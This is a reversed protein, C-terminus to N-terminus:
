SPTAGQFNTVYSFSAKALVDSAGNALFPMNFDGMCGLVESGKLSADYDEGYRSLQITMPPYSAIINDLVILADTDVPLTPYYSERRIRFRIPGYYNLKSRVRFYHKTGGDTVDLLLSEVNETTSEITNNNISLVTMPLTRWALKDYDTGVTSFSLGQARASDTVDTAIELTISSETRALHSNVVDFYITGIGDTLCPSYVTPNAANRMIVCANIENTYYRVTGVRFIDPVSKQAYRASWPLYNRGSLGEAVYGARCNVLHWLPTGDAAHLVHNTGHLLYRTTIATNDNSPEHVWYTVGITSNTDYYGQNKIQGTLVSRSDNNMLLVRDNGINSYAGEVRACSLLAIALLLLASPVSRRSLSFLRGFLPRGISGRERFCATTRRKKM